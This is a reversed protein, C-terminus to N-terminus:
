RGSLTGKGASGNGLLLSGGYSTNTMVNYLELGLADYEAQM